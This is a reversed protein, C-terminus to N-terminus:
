MKTAIPNTTRLRLLGANGLMNRQLDRSDVHHVSVNRVRGFAHCDIQNYPQQPATLLKTLTTAMRTGTRGLVRTFTDSPLCFARPCTRLAASACNSRGRNFAISAPAPCWGPRVVSRRHKVFRKGALTANSGVAPWFPFENASDENGLLRPSCCHFLFNGDHRGSDRRM